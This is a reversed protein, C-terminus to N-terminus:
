ADYIRGVLSLSMNVTVSEIGWKVEVETRPPLLLPITVPQYDYNGHPWLASFVEQGNFEIAIFVNESGVNTDAFALDAVTYYNGTTFKVMTTAASGSGADQVPGSLAYAHNGLVSLGKNPGLFTAIQKKAM